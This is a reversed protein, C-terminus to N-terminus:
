FSVSGKLPNSNIHIMWDTFETINLFKTSGGYFYKYGLKIVEAFEEKTQANRVAWYLVEDRHIKYDMSAERRMVDMLASLKMRSPTTYEKM